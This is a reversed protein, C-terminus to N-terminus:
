GHRSWLNVPLPIKCGLMRNNTNRKVQESIDFFDDLVNEKSHFCQPESGFMLFYPSYGQLSIKPVSNIMMTALTLVNLWVTHYQDTFLRLLTTVYRNHIEVLGHSEPSYATTQKHKIGYFKLLKQMAPGSLNSANDSSIISPVGFAKFLVNELVNAIAESKESSPPIPFCYTSYMDVCNLYASYGKVLPLGVVLNIQWGKRPEVVLTTEGIMTKGKNDPKNLSCLICGRCFEKVDDKMKPWVYQKKILKMMKNFGGHSQFHFLALVYPVLSRPVMIVSQDKANIKHLIKNTDISFKAKALTEVPLQLIKELKEDNEQHKSINEPDLVKQLEFLTFGLNFMQTTIKLIQPDSCSSPKYNFPGIGRYLNSNVDLYCNNPNKCPTVFDEKFLSLSEDKTLIKGVPFKLDIHQGMKYTLQQPDRRTDNPVVMLRSLFDAVGNREGALHCCVFNINFEYHKLLLCTLKVCSDKHKLAWLVPQSDTLVYTLPAAEVYDRFNMIITVLALFEKEMASYKLTQSQTFTKSYFSIPKVLFVKDKLKDIKETMSLPTELSGTIDHKSIDKPDRVFNKVVPTNRGPSIGPLLNIEANTEPLFGFKSLMQKEGEHTKDFSEVQYLLGGMGM